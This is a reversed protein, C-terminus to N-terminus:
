ENVLILKYDEFKMIPVFANDNKTKYDKFVTPNLRVRENQTLISSFNKGYKGLMTGWYMMLNYGKFTYDTANLGTKYFIEKAINKNELNTDDNYEQFVFHTNHLMFQEYSIAPADLWKSTVIVPIDAINIKRQTKKEDPKEETKYRATEDLLNTELFTFITAALSPDSTFIAFHGVSDMRINGMVKPLINATFKSLRRYLLAKGGNKEYAIKYAKATLSDGGDIGYIIVTKKYRNFNKLAFLAAETGQTEYSPMNLYYGPLSCSLTAYQSLPNVISIANKKSFSVMSNQQNAYVPGVILDYNQAFQMQTFDQIKSSDKGSEYAILNTKLGAKSLSDAALKMGEYMEYIFHNQASAEFPLICAINFNNGSQTLIETKIYAVNNYNALFKDGPFRNKLINITDNTIKSQLFYGKALNSKEIYPEKNIKSFQLFADIYNHSELQCVAKLYYAASIESWDPDFSILQYLVFNADKFNQQKFYCYASLYKSNNILENKAPVGKYIDTFIKNAEAFANQSLLEKALAYKEPESQSSSYSKTRAACSAFVLAISFYIPLKRM